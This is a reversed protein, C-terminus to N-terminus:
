HRCVPKSAQEPSHFTARGATSPGKLELGDEPQILEASDVVTPCAGEKTELDGKRKKKKKRM